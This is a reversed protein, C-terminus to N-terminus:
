RDTQSAQPRSSRLCWLDRHGRSCFSFLRVFQQIKDSILQNSAEKEADAKSLGRKYRQAQKDGELMVKAKAFMSANARLVNNYSM